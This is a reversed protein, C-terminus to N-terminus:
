GCPRQGLPLPTAKGTRSFAFGAGSASPPVPVRRGNATLRVGARGLNIRLRGGGRARFTRGAAITGEFAVKGKGDDLCVYTPGAPVVRVTLGRAAARTQRQRRARRLKRDRAAKREAATQKQTSHAPTGSSKKKSDGGTLGLVAFLVLLLVIGIAFAGGPGIPPGSRRNRPERASRPAFTPIDGTGRPEHQARYEEILLQADLGLYDSYTRLFTKVLTRDPLMGFEDNELARLYKARIKTYTEADAIDLERRLRAERLRQGITV